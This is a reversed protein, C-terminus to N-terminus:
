KFRNQYDSNEKIIKASEPYNEIFWVKFTTVDIKDVLMKQKRNKFEERMLPIALLEDIKQFLDEPNDPKVGFTLRYKHELEELVSIKGTFDSFRISPTGLMAAEVAMSQSDGIYLESYYLLHHIDEFPINLIYQDFFSDLKREASIYVDGVKELKVILQKAIMNNIGRIARDHSASLKSFRLLFIPKNSKLFISIKSKDPKFYNPHLYALKQYGKYAIKKKKFVGLNTETPSLIVKAFPLAMLGNLMVASLDDEAFIISPIGLLFSTLTITQSPRGIIIDPNYIKCIKYVKKTQLILESLKNKLGSKHSGILEYIFGLNNLLDILIDKRAALIKVEHGKKELLWIINKFHHIHAPHRVEFIYKM